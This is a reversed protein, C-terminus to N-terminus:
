MNQSVILDTQLRFGGGNTEEAPWRQRGDANQTNMHTLVPRGSAVM